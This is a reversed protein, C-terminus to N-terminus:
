EPNYVNIAPGQKGHSVSVKQVKSVSSFPGKSNISHSPVVSALNTPTHQLHRTMQQLSEM